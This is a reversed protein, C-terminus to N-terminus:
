VLVRRKILTETWLSRRRSISFGSTPQCAQGAKKRLQRMLPQDHNGM